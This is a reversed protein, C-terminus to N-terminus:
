HCHEVDKLSYELLLIILFMKLAEQLFIMTLLQQINKTGNGTLENMPYLTVLRIYTSGNLGRFYKLIDKITNKEHRMVMVFLIYM